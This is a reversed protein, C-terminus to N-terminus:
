NEEHNEGTQNTFHKSLLNIFSNRENHSLLNQVLFRNSQQTSEDNGFISNLTFDNDTLNKFGITLFSHPGYEWYLIFLDEPNFEAKRKLKIFESNNVILVKIKDKKRCDTIIIPNDESSENLPENLIHGAFITKDSGKYYLLAMHTNIPTKSVGNAVANNAEMKIAKVGSKPDLSKDLCDNIMKEINM